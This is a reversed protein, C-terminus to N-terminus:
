LDPLSALFKLPVSLRENEIFWEQEDEDNQETEKLKNMEKHIREMKRDLQTAAVAAEKLEEILKEPVARNYKYFIKHELSAWFDMAITRIQV